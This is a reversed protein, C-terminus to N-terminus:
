FNHKIGVDYGRKEDALDGLSGTKSDHGFDVYLTTRKSLAYHYGIATLQMLTTGATEQRGHSIRFEGAGIPATATLLYSKIKRDLNDRGTGYFIGPKVFGFNWQLLASTWKDFIGAQDTHGIAAYIPGAGYSVGFSKPREQQTFNDTAEAIQAAATFGGFTVDYKISNNMWIWDVPPIGGITIYANGRAGIQGGPIQDWGWPDAPLNVLLSSAGYDRGLTLRGWGGGLGVISRGRWFPENPPRGATLPNSNVLRSDGTVTGNDANFRHELNFFAQLGGGLDEVGRVGLRSGSGNNLDKRDTGIGKAVMLDVRGYLTVSSQASAASAFTGLVALALLSKKM